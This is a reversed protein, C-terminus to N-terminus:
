QKAGQGSGHVADLTWDLSMDRGNTHGRVELGDPNTINTVLTLMGDPYSDMSFNGGSDLPASMDPKSVANFYRSGGIEAAAMQVATMAPTNSLDELGIRFSGAWAANTNTDTGSLTGAYTGRFIAPLPDPIRALSSGSGQGVGLARASEPLAAALRVPAGRQESVPLTVSSLLTWDAASMPMIEPLGSFGKRFIMVTGRKDLLWTAGSQKDRIEVPGGETLYVSTEEATERLALDTGRIGLSLTPTEMRIATPDGVAMGGSILRTLGRAVSVAFAAKQGPAYVYESVTSRSDPALMLVSDDRFLVQLRGVADTALTDGVFVPNKGALVSQTDAREAWATKRAAIVSGASEACFAPAAIALLSFLSLAVAGIGRTYNVTSM